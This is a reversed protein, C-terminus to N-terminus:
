CKNPSCCYEFGARHKASISCFKSAFHNRHPFLSLSTIKNFARCQCPMDASVFYRQFPNHLSFGRIKWGRRIKGGQLLSELPKSSNLTLFISFLSSLFCVSLLDSRTWAAQKPPCTSIPMHIPSHNKFQKSSSGSELIVIQNPGMPRSTM